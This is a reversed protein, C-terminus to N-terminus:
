IKRVFVGARAKPDFYTSKPPMLADADAVTMLQEISTAYCAFCVEWGEKGKQELGARGATGSVYDLRPDSRTDTIGLVPQLIHNQLISVDLCNVPDTADINSEKIKLRYWHQNVLMGFEGHATPMYPDQSLESASSSASEAILEVSFDKKLADVLESESLGGLDRVARHFPLLALQETSFLAVLLQNYPENGTHAAASEKMMQAYRLGSAARHHGDTLYATEIDAFLAQFQQQVEESQIRWVQQSVGDASVFDLTPPSETHKKILQNIAKNDPYALCVPSSAVGVVKQYMTLLDEKDSRTNEHKRLGGHQYEEVSVECVLGIQTHENVSLRYIFMCPQEFHNFAGNSLLKDLNAKNLALLQDISPQSDAPFDDQLRMANMYNHPNDEAFQRRQQPSVADYAPAVVQEAHAADVLYGDFGRIRPM